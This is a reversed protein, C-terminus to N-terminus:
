KHDNRSWPANQSDSAARMASSTIYAMLGRRTFTSTRCFVRPPMLKTANQSVYGALFAGLPFAMLYGGTPSLIWIFGFDGGSFVPLGAIGAAVYTALAAAGLRPGLVLGVLLLAGGQLTEPVPSFPTLIEFQAAVAVFAKRSAAAGQVSCLCPFVAATPAARRRAASASRVIPTSSEGNTGEVAARRRSCSPMGSAGSRRSVAAAGSYILAPVRTFFPGTRNWVM